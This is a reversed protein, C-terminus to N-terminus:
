IELVGNRMCFPADPHQIETRSRCGIECRFVVKGNRKAVIAFQYRDNEWFMDDPLTAKFGANIASELHAYSKAIDARPCPTATVSEGNPGILDVSDAAGDRMMIWGVIRLENTELAVVELYGNDIGSETAMGSDANSQGSSPFLRSLLNGKPFNSQPVPQNRKAAVPQHEASDSVADRNLRGSISVEPREQLRLPDTWGEKKSGGLDSVPVFGQDHYKLTSGEFRPIEQHRILFRVEECRLPKQTKDFPIAWIMWWYGVNPKLGNWTKAPITFTLVGGVDERPEVTQRHVEETEGGLSIAIVYTRISADPASIEFEISEAARIGHAPGVIGLSAIAQKSGINHLQQFNSEEQEVFPMMSDPPLIDHYRCSQCLVPVDGTYMGRRLDQAETGNWITEFDQENLNGLSLEGQTAYCCPAVDGESDVRLRGYANRCFGPFMRKMRLDRQDNWIKRKKMEVYGPERFDYESYGAISWILRFKREKATAVCSRKIWAIYEQSFHILPDHLRSNGNVDLLQILNVNQIGLDALYNLTDTLMPANQTMFVINVICELDHELSLRATTELNAFVKKSNSRPRIKEFVAPIHSDISLILTETIDKLDLFKKEDLFQVNTTICLLIGYQKAMDRTQDWTLVLPESGSYPTVISLHRGIQKGIKELLEPSTKKTPPNNGDWCMICSMNCFNSYQIHAEYPGASFHTRNNLLDDFLLKRYERELKEKASFAAKTAEELDGPLDHQNMAVGSTLHISFGFPAFM